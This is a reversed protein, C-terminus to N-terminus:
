ERSLVVRRRRAVAVAVLVAPGSESRAIKYIATADKTSKTTDMTPHVTHQQRRVRRAAGGTASPSSARRASTTSSRVSTAFSRAVCCDYRPSPTTDGGSYSAFASPITHAGKERDCEHGAADDRVSTQQLSCVGTAGQTLRGGVVERLTEGLTDNRTKSVSIRVPARARKEAAPRHRRKM